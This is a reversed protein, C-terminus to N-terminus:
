GRMIQNEFITRPSLPASLNKSKTHWRTKLVGNVTMWNYIHSTPSLPAILDKKQNKPWQGKQKLFLSFMFNGHYLELEEKNTLM